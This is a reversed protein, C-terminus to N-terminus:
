DADGGSNDNFYTGGPQQKTRPLVKAKTTIAANVLSADVLDDPQKRRTALRRRM